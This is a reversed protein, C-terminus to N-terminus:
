RLGLRRASLNTALTVFLVVTISSLPMLIASVVPSLMGSVAFFMGVINYAFSLAFSWWVIRITTKALRQFAPLKGLEEAQLIADSAPTFANMEEAVGIGMHSESLAGADNLGDGVMLCHAGDTQLQRIFQLKQEPRQGFHMQTGDGLLDSLRNRDRDQDGSLVVLQLGQSRSEDGLQELGNRLPNQVVFAGLWQGDRALHVASEGWSEVPAGAKDARGIFYHHHGVTGSLGSGKEEVFDDVKQLEAAATHAYLARSLPHGSQHTLSRIASQLESDLPVQLNAQIEPERTGTLTGTKDLVLHTCRAMNEIADANKLYFKRAGFIRLTNGLAFPASLALACPCAVILVASIVKVAIGVDIRMWYIGATLAILLIALTFHKSIRDTLNQFHEGSEKKYQPDNWLRILESQDLPHLVELVIAGEMQRGGAFIRDGPKKHIPDSEGTAFSNDIAGRGEILVSDTPIVEGHRIVIRDGTQLERVFTPEEGNATQRNVTMPFFSRYDRDFRLADYTRRQFLKGLLLFFVLGNLSDFYGSGISTVVEYTSRLFLTAIGLAIPLDINVFGRRMSKFASTFYDSASYTLVPLSLGLLVIRFFPLFSQLQVDDFDFYEPLAMLMANGFGFGAVGLKYTLSRDYRREGREGHDLSLDPAYGISDLLAALQSLKVQEALFTIRASRDNFNVQVHQIGAQLKPLNELLWICSSCHIAPLALKVRVYGGDAFETVKAAVEERDLASYDSYKDRATSGPRDELQYYLGLEHDRLLEYVTQCGHCCFPHDDSRIETKCVEGCHFCKEQVPAQTSTDSVNCLHLGQSAQTIICTM